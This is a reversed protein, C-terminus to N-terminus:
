PVEGGLFRIETELKIGFMSYVQEQIRRILRVIDSATANDANVIFNAHKHSVQAGGERAGKLGAKEILLGAPLSGPNVFVSGATAFEVPQTRSRVSLFHQMKEKVQEGPM